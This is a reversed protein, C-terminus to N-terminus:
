KAGGVNRLTASRDIYAAQVERVELAIEEALDAFVELTERTPPGLDEYAAAFAALSQSITQIRQEVSLLQGLLNGPTPKMDTITDRPCTAISTM